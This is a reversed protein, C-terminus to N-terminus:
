ARAIAEDLSLTRPSPTDHQVINFNIGGLAIHINKEISRINLQLACRCDRAPLGYCDSHMAGKPIIAAPGLLRAM